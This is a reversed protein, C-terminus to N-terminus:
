RLRELPIRGFVIGFEPEPHTWALYLHDREKAMQPIGSGRGASLSGIVFPEGVKGNVDVVRALLRSSKGKPKAMWSALARHGDLWIASIRGLPIEEDLKLSPQFTKGGDDSIAALVRPREGEATFWAAMVNNGLATLAPGNVPCGAIKWGEDGLPRATEWAGNALRAIRHDRVEEDTRGRWAAVAGDSVVATATWCCTCTNNDVVQEPEMIGEASIHTYMLAFNGAHHSGHGDVTAAYDRGDLWIIGAGGRDPFISVFGHEAAKGDRHPSGVHRWTRGADDSLAIAIDYDYPGGDSQRVLWHAVWFDDDIAVVSPFDAWNIFWDDGQIVNGERQWAGDKLVAYKLTQLGDSPEVWSLIVGGDPMVSLRPLRAAKGAPTEMLAVQIDTPPDALRLVMLIATVVILALLGLHFPFKSMDSAM